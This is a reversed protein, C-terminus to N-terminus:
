ACCLWSAQQLSTWLTPVAHAFYGCSLLVVFVDAVLMNPILTLETKITSRASHCQVICAALQTGKQGHSMEYMTLTLICSNHFNM